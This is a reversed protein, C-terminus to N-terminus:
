FYRGRAEQKPMHTRNYWMRWAMRDAEFAANSNNFRGYEALAYDIRSQLWHIYMCDYPGEVLLLTDDATDERYEPEVADEAGEHTLVVERWLERDLQALWRIKEEQGFSNPQLEDTKKIADGITM